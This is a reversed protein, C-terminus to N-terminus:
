YLQTAKVVSYSRNSWHDNLFALELKWRQEDTQYRPIVIVDVKWKDPNYEALDMIQLFAPSHFHQSLYEKIHTRSEPEGSWQESLHPGIKVGENLKFIVSQAAEKFILQATNLVTTPQSSSEENCFQVTIRWGELMADEMPVGQAILLEMLSRVQKTLGKPGESQSIANTKPNNVM